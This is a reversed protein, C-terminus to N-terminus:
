EQHTIAKKVARREAMDTMMASRTPVRDTWSTAFHRRVQPYFVPGALYTLVESHSGRLLVNAARVYGLDAKVGFRPLIDM